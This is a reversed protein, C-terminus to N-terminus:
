IPPPLPLEPSDSGDDFRPNTHAGLSTRVVADTLTVNSPSSGGSADRDRATTTPLLRVENGLNRAHGNGTTPETTPTPLLNLVAPALMLDGRSGHQNPSGKPGDSARPTPLLCETAAQAIGGLLLEDARPGGRSTQNGDAAAATPTPLLDLVRERLNAPSHPDAALAEPTKPGFGDSTQPTPLTLLAEELGPGGDRNQITPGKDDRARTTPLLAIATRLDLGLHGHLGPGNADTTRPTPLHEIVDSLSVSHGAASRDEPPMGAGRSGQYADPSPLLQTVTADLSPRLAAGPSPSRNSGYPTATPTPLGPWASGGSASTRRVSTRHEFVAGSRM